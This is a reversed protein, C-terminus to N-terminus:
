QVILPLFTQYPPIYKGVASVGLWTPEQELCGIGIHATAIYTYGPLYRGTDLFEMYFTAKYIGLEADVVEAPAYSLTNSNGINNETLQFDEVWHDIEIWIEPGACEGFRVELEVPYEVNTDTVTPFSPVVIADRTGQASGPITSLALMIALLILFGILMKKKM